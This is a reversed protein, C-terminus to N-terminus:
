IIYLNHCGFFIKTTHMMLLVLFILRKEPFLFSDFRHRIIFNYDISLMEDAKLLFKESNTGYYKTIKLGDAVSACRSPDNINITAATQTPSM